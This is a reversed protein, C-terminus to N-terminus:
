LHWRALEGIDKREKHPAAPEDGRGIPILVVPEEDPALRLLQAVARTDFNCVWCTALGRDTARLTLHDIAIATDIDAHDKGDARHWSQDHRAIAVLVCPATAFWDRGYTKHLQALLDPQQVVEMRWPQRNCASPALRAADLVDDLEERTPAAPAYSRCSHRGRIVEMLEM